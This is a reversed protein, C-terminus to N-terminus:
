KPELAAMVVVAGLARGETDSKPSYPFFSLGVPLVNTDLFCEPVDRVFDYGGAKSYTESPLPEGDVFATLTIPGLKQIQTEPFYLRVLLRAGNRAAPPPALALMADPGVWRFANDAGRGEMDYFGDILQSAGAPDAMRVVSAPAQVRHCGVLPLLLLAVTLIRSM